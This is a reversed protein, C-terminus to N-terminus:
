VFCKFSFWNAIKVLQFPVVSIFVCLKQRSFLSAVSSPSNGDFYWLELMKQLLVFSPITLYIKTFM